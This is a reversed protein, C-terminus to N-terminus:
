REYLPPKETQLFGATQTYVCVRTHLACLASTYTLQSVVARNWSWLCAILWRALFLFIFIIEFWYCLCFVAQNRKKLFFAM